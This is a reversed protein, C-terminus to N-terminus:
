VYFFLSDCGFIFPDCGFMLYFAAEGTSPHLFVNYVMTTTHVFEDWVIQHNYIPKRLSAKLFSHTCEIISNGTPHLALYM